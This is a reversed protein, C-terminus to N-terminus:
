MWTTRALVKDGLIVKKAISPVGQSNITFLMYFGGLATGKLVPATVRLLNDGTKSFPVKVRRCDTNLSHSMSGTRILVVEKVDDASDVGLNFDVGYEVQAPALTILPRVTANTNADFMYPPSYFQACNVGLDADGGPADLSGSPVIGNRNQGGLYVTADPYLQIIGHEDRPVYTKDMKTVLGTAPDFMQVHLSWSEVGPLSGGNGGMILIKGDPLPTAYNQRARQYLKGPLTAWKPMAKPPAGPARVKSLPTLDLVEAADSATGTGAPNVGGFHYLKHSVVNGEEDLEVLNSNASFPSHSVSSKDLYKIWKGARVQPKDRDPDNMAGQVDFLWTKTFTRDSTRAQEAGIESVTEFLEADLVVVGWDNEGAGTQVMLGNPYWASHYLRANELAITKDLTGDYIEPVPQVVRSNLFATDGGSALYGALKWNAPLTHSPSNFFNTLATTTASPNNQAPPNAEDRDWGAYIFAKNGPIAVVTPYWRAYRMDSEEKGPHTVTGNEGMLRIKPYTKSYDSASLAHPNCDNNTSNGIPLYIDRELKGLDKQAQFWKEFYPDEPDSGIQARMCSEPRDIWMEADPDFVQIRYSGNQSNMDHGGPFIPRGDELTAFGPCYMDYRLGRSYGMNKWSLFNTEADSNNLTAPTIKPKDFVINFADPHATDWLQTLEITQDVRIRTPVSQSVDHIITYGGYALQQFTRRFSSNFQNTRNSFATLGTVPDPNTILFNIIDPNAVEDARYAAHRHFMLVKPKDDSNTKWTLTNHVSMAHMVILPGVKGYLVPNTNTNVAITTSGSPVVSLDDDDHALLPRSACFALALGAAAVAAAAPRRNRKTYYTPNVRM